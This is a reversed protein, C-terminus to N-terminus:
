SDMIKSEEKMFEISGGSEVRQLSTFYRKIIQKDKILENKAFHIRDIYRMHLEVIIIQIAFLIVWM